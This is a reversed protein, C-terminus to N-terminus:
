EENKCFNLPFKLKPIIIISFLEFCTRDYETKCFASMAMIRWKNKKRLPFFWNDAFDGIGNFDPRNPQCRINVM